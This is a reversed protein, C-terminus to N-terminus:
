MCLTLFIFHYSYLLLLLLLLLLISIMVYEQCFNVSINNNVFHTAVHKCVELVLTQWGSFYLEQVFYQHAQQTCYVNM